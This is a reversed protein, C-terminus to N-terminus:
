NLLKRDLSGSTLEIDFLLRYKVRILEYFLITKRIFM